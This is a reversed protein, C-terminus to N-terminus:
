MPQKKEKGFISFIIIYLSSVSFSLIVLQKASLPGFGNWIFVVSGYINDLSTTYYDEVPNNDGRTVCENDEFRILRHCFLTNEEYGFKPNSFVLIDGVKPVENEDYEKFIIYADTMITPEMSGSVIHSVGYNFFLTMDGVIRCYISSFILFVSFFMLLKRLLSFVKTM